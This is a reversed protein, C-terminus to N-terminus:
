DLRRYTHFGNPNDGFNYPHPSGVRFFGLPRLFRDYSDSSRHVIYNGRPGAEDTVIDTVILTGGLRVSEALAELSAAWLGEDLIHFLVDISYVVDFPENWSLEHLREVRYRGRCHQRCYSVAESSVDIGLVDHGMEELRHSFYGRGCGADLIGLPRTPEFYQGILDVLSALRLLYFARNEQESLGVHGGARLGGVTRHRANWYEEAVEPAMLEM